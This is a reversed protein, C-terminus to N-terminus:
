TQPRAELSQFPFLKHSSQFELPISQRLSADMTRVEEEKQRLNRTAEGVEGAAVAVILSWQLLVSLKM